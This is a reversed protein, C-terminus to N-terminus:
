EEATKPEAPIILKATLVGTLAAFAVLLLLMPVYNAMMEGWLTWVAYALVVSGLLCGCCILFCRWGRCWATPLTIRRLARVGLNGGLLGVTYIVFELWKPDSHYQKSVEIVLLMAMMIAISGFFTILDRNRSLKEQLRLTDVTNSVMDAAEEKPIDTDIRKSQMLEVITIELADALPQLLKIDPFGVGREWRSVAKATVHLKEALESQSLCLDHRCKKIFSGFVEPDM